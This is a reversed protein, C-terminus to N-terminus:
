VRYILQELDDREQEAKRHGAATGNIYVERDALYILVQSREGGHHTVKAFVGEPDEAFGRRRLERTVDPM